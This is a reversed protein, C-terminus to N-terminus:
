TRFRPLYAWVVRESAGWGGWCAGWAGLRTGLLGHGIGVLLGWVGLGGRCADGCLRFTQLLLRRVAFARRNVRFRQGSPAVAQLWPHLSASGTSPSDGSRGRGPLPPPVTRPVVRDRMFSIGRDGEGRRRSFPDCTSRARVDLLQQRKHVAFLCCYTSLRVAM